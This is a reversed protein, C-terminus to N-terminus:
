LTTYEARGSARRSGFLSASRTLDVLMRPLEEWFTKHPLADLGTLGYTNYNYWIGSILYVFFILLVIMIFTKFPNSSTDPSSSDKRSSSTACGAPTPWTLNLTGQISDYVTTTPKSPVAKRDQDSCILNFIATQQVNNYMAGRMVLQVSEKNETKNIVVTAPSKDTGIPIIKELRRDTGIENYILMCVLTGDPCSQAPDSSPLKKCLSILITETTTSPPTPSTTTLNLPWSNTDLLNNFDYQSGHPSSFKCDVLHNQDSPAESHFKTLAGPIALLGLLLLRIVLILM